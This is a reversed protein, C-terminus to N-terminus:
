VLILAVITVRAEIREHEVPLRSIIHHAAAAGTGVYVAQHRAERVHSSQIVVYGYEAFRFAGAAATTPTTAAPM